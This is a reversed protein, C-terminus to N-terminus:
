GITTEQTRPAITGRATPVRALRRPRLRAPTM